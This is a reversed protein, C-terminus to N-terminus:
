KGGNPGVLAFVEGKEIGFSVDVVAHVKGSKTSNYTKNIHSARLGDRSTLARIEEDVVDRKRFESLQGDIKPVDSTEQSRGLRGLSFSHDRWVLFGFMFVSQITLYLIPGGYLDVAGPYTAKVPPSGSCLLGFVNLGVITARLLQAVPSVLSVSFL